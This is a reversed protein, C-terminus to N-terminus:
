YILTHMYQVQTQIKDMDLNFLYEAMAWSMIM